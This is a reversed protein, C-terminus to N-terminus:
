LFLSTRELIHSLTFSDKRVDIVSTDVFISLNSDRLSSRCISILEAESYISTGALVLAAAAVAEVVKFTLM